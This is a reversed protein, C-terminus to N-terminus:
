LPMKSCPSLFTDLRLFGGFDSTLPSIENFLSLAIKGPNVRFIKKIWALRCGERLWGDVGNQSTGGKRCMGPVHILPMLFGGRM